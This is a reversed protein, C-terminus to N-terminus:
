GTQQQSNEFTALAEQENNAIRFVRDMRTLKFVSAVTQGLGCLVLNGERGIRKFGSVIAGLGTSDLFEVESLDLVLLRHGAEVLDGLQEKFSNALSADFSRELLKVVTVQGVQKQEFKM